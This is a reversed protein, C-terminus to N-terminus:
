HEFWYTKIASGIQANPAFGAEDLSNWDRDDDDEPTDDPDTKAASTCLNGICLTLGEDLILWTFETPIGMVELEVGDGNDNLTSLGTELSFRYVHGSGVEAVGCIDVASSAGPSYTSVFIEGGFTATEQLVKEYTASSFNRYFGYNKGNDGKVYGVSTADHLDAQTIVARATVEDNQNLTTRYKYIAKDDDAIDPTNNDDILPGTLNEDIVVYLRNNWNEENKPNARYGSGVSLTFFPTDAYPALFSVDLGNYFRRKHTGERLNAIMGGSAYGSGPNLTTGPVNATGAATQDFDFRFIRGSIDVVFLMDMDGDRDIDIPSPGSPISDYMPLTNGDPDQHLGHGHHNGASWLLNGTEMDVIYVADGDVADSDHFASGPNDYHGDYGGGFILVQKTTCGTNTSADACGWRITSQVMPSWSYGMDAFDGSGGTIKWKQSIPAASPNEFDANSIDWAFYDKGGRRMGQFMYVKGINFNTSSSGNAVETYVTAEGDLGYAHWHRLASSNDRYKRLNPMFEPLMYSWLETGYNLRADIARIEGMNTTLFLIDRADDVDTGSYTIVVPRSHLSDAAYRHADTTDSDSDYDDVDIGLLWDRLQDNEASGAPLGLSAADLNSAPTLKIIGSGGGVVTSADVYVQRTNTLQERFGGKKVTAGDPSDSWFSQASSKFFGNDGIVPVAEGAQGFIVGDSTLGYRKVNGEWAPEYAPTFTAYYIQNRHRLENFANVSVAPAVLASSQSVGIENLINQFATMLDIYNEANYYTGGGKEATVRLLELNIDFGITYTTVRTRGDIAPRVDNDAMYEALNDLCSNRARADSGLDVTYSYCEGVVSEIEVVLETDGSPEGDTLLIINNSQCSHDIPSQYRTTSSAAFIDPDDDIVSLSSVKDLGSFYRYAEFLTEAIPTGGNAPLGAIKSLLASRDAANEINQVRSIVSGGNAQSHHPVSTNFQMLGMNVGSISNVINTLADIMTKQKRKCAYVFGLSDQSDYVYLDDGASFNVATTYDPQNNIESSLRKIFHTYRDTLACFGKVGKPDFHWQVGGLQRKVYLGARSDFLNAPLPPTYNLYDHYNGTYFYKDTLGESTWDIGNAAVYRPSICDATGCFAAETDTSGGDIGHIGADDACELISDSSSNTEVNASWEGDTVVKDTVADLPSCAPDVQTEPAHQNYRLHGSVRTRGGGRARLLVRVEYHNWGFGSAGFTVSQTKHPTWENKIRLRRSNGPGSMRVGASDTRFIIVGGSMRLRGTRITLTMRSGPIIDKETLRVGGEFEIEDETKYARNAFGGKIRRKEVLRIKSSPPRTTPCVVAPALETETIVPQWQLVKDTFVPYEPSNTFTTTLAGCKNQAQTITVGSFTELDDYVYILDDDAADGDGGYDFDPDYDGKANTYEVPVAELMSRSTDAIFLLNPESSAAGSAVSGAYIGLDGEYPQALATLTCFVSLALGPKITFKSKLRLM